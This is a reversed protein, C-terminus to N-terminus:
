WPLTAQKSVSNKTELVLLLVNAVMSLVIMAALPAILGASFLARRARAKAESCIHSCPLV